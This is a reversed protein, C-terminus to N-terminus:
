QREVAGAPPEPNAELEREAKERRRYVGASLFIGFEYLLVLPFMMMITLTIADGPTIFSALVTILVVAHRRKTRLFSPTVLGMLSLALIVIPLEFVAGFAFLMKVIFGLTANIELTGELSDTLFAKFFELTVPLAAFYALAVGAIFLLLGLYLAPVIARKETQELAPSLFSWTHYVLIPFAMLFGGYIALRLTVFFPDAPSLFILKLDPDDYAERIPMVLLELVNFYYVLAFGIISGVVVAIISWLIRWRLEELHDLFPMEGKIKRHRM